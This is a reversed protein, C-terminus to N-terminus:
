ETVQNVTVIVTDVIESVTCARSLDNIPRRLGQLIPGISKAGAFRQVLKYGINGAELSPFILINAPPIFDSSPKKAQLVKSDMAADLQVEGIIPIGPMAKKAIETAIRVKDVEKHHASGDTSFSLFAVKADLDLLQKASVVSAKAIEALTEAKPQIHLACDAFIIVKQEPMGYEFVEIFFSSVQKTGESMGVIQLANRVVEATTNIAGAVCADAEGLSVMVNAFILPTLILQSAKEKSLGKHKRIQYLADAYYSHQVLHKPNIIEIGHSEPSLNSIESQLYDEDGLLVVKAIGLKDLAVAAQRIRLDNAEPLVVTRLPKKAQWILGELFDM